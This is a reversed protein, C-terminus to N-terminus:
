GANNGGLLEDELSPAAYHFPVPGDAEGHLFQHVLPDDSAELQSPTGHGVVKKDAIIYVYDAITMVEAVDHTVVISTLGLSQNLEKILKVIVGMSIPDQGAFPEDYMILEPDLAIARALAARRAMGGSLEAPMLHRAGRLGVAELKLKVITDIIEEPLVSHERIPFAINDFVTMDTFLAGSQFLMSMRKRLEYLDSRGLAHINEGAFTISGQQPRLQAGILRLLTTKGIGSPGMVATIKGKPIRMSLGRYVQHAGFGHAFDINDIVVLAEDDAHTQPQTSTSNQATQM